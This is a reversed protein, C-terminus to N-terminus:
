RVNQSSGEEDIMDGTCCEYTKGCRQLAEALTTLSDVIQGHKETPIFSFVRALYINFSTEITHFAAKGRETLLLSVYRRDQPNVLRNVLGGKVMNDVTRSLTSTDVGLMGALEVISIEERTGIELLAHCQAMTVGCCQIDNRQSWGLERQVDRMKERFLRTTKDDM